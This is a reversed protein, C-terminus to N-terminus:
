SVWQYLEEDLYNDLKKRVVKVVLIGKCHDLIFFQNLLDM